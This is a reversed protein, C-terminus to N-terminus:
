VPDKASVASRVAALPVDNREALAEWADADRTRFIEELSQADLADTGLMARLRDVFHPELAALAIWGDQAPYLRYTALAGGLAGIATTLGFTLPAAFAHAADVIGVDARTAEGTRERHLLAALTQSVSHEAAALDGILTPPMHPPTILGARAQYTLDHGARDDHPPAEGFLALHCLRPYAAHLTPWDLQLRALAQARMTTLLVDADVLLERLSAQADPARLDHRVVHQGACLQAYWRPAALELADGHPPEVKIVRAGLASLRSAALPGPINTALAVITIGDLLTRHAATM